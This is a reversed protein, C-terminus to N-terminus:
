SEYEHDIARSDERNYHLWETDRPEGCQEPKGTPYVIAVCRDGTLRAVTERQMESREEETVDHWGNRPTWAASM